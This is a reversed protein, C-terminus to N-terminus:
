CVMLWQTASVARDEQRGFPCPGGHVTAIDTVYGTVRHRGEPTLFDPNYYSGQGPLIDWDGFGTPDSQLHWKGIM